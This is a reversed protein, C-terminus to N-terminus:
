WMLARDTGPLQELLRRVIYKEARWEPSHERDFTMVWADHIAQGIKRDVGLSALYASYASANNRLDSDWLRDLLRFCETLRERDQLIDM